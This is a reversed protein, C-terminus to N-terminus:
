NSMLIELTDGTLNKQSPALRTAVQALVARGNEDGAAQVSTRVYVGGVINRYEWENLFSGPMALMDHSAQWLTQTLDGPCQINRVPVWSGDVPSAPLNKNSPVAANGNNAGPYMVRCWALAQQIQQLQGRTTDVSRAITVGQQNQLYMLGLNSIVIGMLILAPLILNHIFGAQRRM